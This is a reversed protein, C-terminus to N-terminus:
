SKAVADLIRATILQLIMLLFYQAGTPNWVNGKVTDDVCCVQGIM